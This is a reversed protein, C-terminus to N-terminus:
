RCCGLLKNIIELLPSVQVFCLILARTIKTVVIFVAVIAVIFLPLVTTAATIAIVLIQM